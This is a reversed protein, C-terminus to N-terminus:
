ISRDDSSTQAMDARCRLAQLVCVGATGACGALWYTLFASLVSTGLIIAVAMAVLGIGVGIIMAGFIM